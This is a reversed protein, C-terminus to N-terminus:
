NKREKRNLCEEMKNYVQEASVQLICHPVSQVCYNECGALGHQPRIITIDRYPAFWVSLNYAPGLDNLADAYIAVGSLKYASAIHLPGTDGGLYCDSNRIVECTEGLTTMGTLNIAEPIYQMFEQSYKEAKEGNGILLIKLEFKTLLRRCVEAYRDVPWDKKTTSTSLNVILKTNENGLKYTAFLKGVNEKDQETTWLEYSKDLVKLNMYKLFALMSEAEHTVPTTEDYLLNTYYLDNAGEYNDHKKADVTESWTLRYKAGAFFALWADPYTSSALHQLSIALDYHRKRLKNKAFLYTGLLNRIFIHKKFRGNYPLVEDLYPCNKMLEYLAPTCILTIFAKPYNRKLERFFPTTCIMDGLGDLRILLINKIHENNMPQWAETNINLFKAGGWYVCRAIQAEIHKDM